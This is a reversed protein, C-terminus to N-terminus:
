RPVIEDRKSSLLFPWPWLEGQYLLGYACCYLLNRVSRSWNLAVLGEVEEM